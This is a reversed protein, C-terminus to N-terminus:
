AERCCRSTSGVVRLKLYCERSRRSTVRNKPVYVNMSEGGDSQFVRIHEGIKTPARALDLGLEDWGEKAVGLARPM